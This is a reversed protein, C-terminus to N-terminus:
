VAGERDPSDQAVKCTTGSRENNGSKKFEKVFADFDEEARASLHMGGNKAEAGFRMELNLLLDGIEELIAILKEPDVEHQAQEKLKPWRESILLEARKTTKMGAVIEERSTQGV